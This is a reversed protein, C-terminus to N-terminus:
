FPLEEEEEPPEVENQGVSGEEHIIIKVVRQQIGDIYERRGYDYKYLDTKEGYEKIAKQLRAVGGKIRANVPVTCAKCVGEYWEWIQGNTVYDLRGWDQIKADIAERLWPEGNSFRMDWGKLWLGMDEVMDIKRAGLYLKVSDALYSYYGDWDHGQCNGEADIWGMAKCREPSDWVEPCDGGYEKRISDDGHFYGSFALQRVRRRVGGDDETNLGFQGSMVFKPMDEVAINMIDKYLLKRQSDDSVVHKLDSLNVWRPLDSLHVLPEGNWNQILQDIDKKVALGNTVLVPFWPRLIICFFGKGTGGGLSADMPEMLTILYSESSVKYGNCLYGLVLRVYHHGGQIAKGLFDGYMCKEQIEPGVYNWDRDIVSEAWILKDIRLDYDVEAIEEKTIEVIKNRFFKYCTKANSKLILSTDLKSLTTVTFEGATQWFKTLEHTIKLYIPEEEERIWSKLISFVDRAGNVKKTEKLKRIFQGEIICPEGLHLRLGINYMFRDLKERQISYSDNAPNYEWFIGYPYKADKEAIAVKLQEQAEPSFNPPLPKGTEAAKRIVKAEYDPKHKGFGEKVLVPYFKKYDGNHELKCRLFAPTFTEPELDTSSTFVHYLRKDKIFSGSVGGDKGPRTYHIFQDTEKYLDWGNLELVKEAAPSSNFHQFPNEDYVSDYTKTSRIEKTKVQENLLVALTVLAEHEEVTITPIPVDQFVTYGMGPPAMIYGGHTRMEICAETQDKLTALKPNAKEMEVFVVTRYLIHYGGSPTRHIRLRKWLDPYIDQIAKFYRADIGPGYKIDIDIAMLNGSAKGCIIIPAIKVTAGAKHMMKGLADLTYRSEIESSWTGVLPSKAKKKGSKTYEDEARGWMMSLDMENNYETMKQWLLLSDDEVTSLASLSPDVPETLDFTLRTSEETAQQQEDPVEEPRNLWPLTEDTDRESNSNNM